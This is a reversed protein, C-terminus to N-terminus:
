RGLNFREKQFFRGLEEPSTLIVPELHLREMFASDSLSSPNPNIRAIMSCFSSFDRTEDPPVFFVSMNFAHTGMAQYLDIMTLLDKTFETIFDQFEDVTSCPLIGLIEKEGVPVAHAMWAIESGFLYRDTNKESDILYDGYRERERKFFKEGGRLVRDVRDSPHDDVLGQLHPHVLSAGSSPLYNWNISTYGHHTRLSEVQGKLADEIQTPTFREVLHRRTIVSVTHWAAFPFLNPFTVSEGHLIRTGDSFTPTVKEVSDPCFPCNDSAYILTPIQDIGRKIREASIRCSLGTVLDKRYELIGNRTNFEEVTFM